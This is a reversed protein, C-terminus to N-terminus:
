HQGCRYENVGGCRRNVAVKATRQVRPQASSHPNSLHKHGGKQYWKEHAACRKEDIENGDVIMCRACYREARHQGNRTNANEDYQRQRQESCHDASVNVTLRIERTAYIGHRSWNGLLFPEHFRGDDYQQATDQWESRYKDFHIENERREPGIFDVIHVSEHQQDEDNQHNDGNTHCNNTSIEQQVSFVIPPLPGTKQRGCRGGDIHVNIREVIEEKFCLLIFFLFVAHSVLLISNTQEEKRCSTRTIESSKRSQTYPM